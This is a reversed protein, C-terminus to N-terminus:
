WCGFVGPFFGLAFVDAFFFGFVLVFVEFLALVFVGSCFCWLLSFCRVLLVLTFCRLVFVLFGCCLMLVLAIGGSFGVGSCLCWILFM